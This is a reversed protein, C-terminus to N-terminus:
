ESFQYVLLNYQFGFVMFMDALTSTNNNCVSLKRSKRSKKDVAKRELHVYLNSDRSTIIEMYENICIPQKQEKKSTKERKQREYTGLNLQALQM